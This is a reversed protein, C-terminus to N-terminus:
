DMIDFLNDPVFSPQKKFVGFMAFEMLYSLAAKQDARTNSLRVGKEWETLYMQRVGTSDVARYAAYIPDPASVESLIVRHRDEYQPNYIAIVVLYESVAM